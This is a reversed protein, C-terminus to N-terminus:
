KRLRFFSVSGSMPLTVTNVGNSLAPATGVPGWNMSTLMAKSELAFGPVNPWSILVSNDAARISLAPQLPVVEGFLRM